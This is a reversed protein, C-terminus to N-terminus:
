EKVFEKAIFLMSHPQSPDGMVSNNTEYVEYGKDSEEIIHYVSGNLDPHGKTDIKHLTDGSTLTYREDGELGDNRLSNM